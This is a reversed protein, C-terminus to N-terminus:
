MTIVACCLLGSVYGCSAELYTFKDHEVSCSIEVELLFYLASFVKLSEITNIRSIATLTGVITTPM